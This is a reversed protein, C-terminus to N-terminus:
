KKDLNKNDEVNALKEYAKNYIRYLHRKDYNFERVIKDMSKGLVFREVLLNHSLSDLRDLAYFFDRERKLAEQISMHLRSELDELRFVYREQISTRVGGGHSPPMDSPTSPLTGLTILESLEERLNRIKRKLQNLEELDRKVKLGEESLKM